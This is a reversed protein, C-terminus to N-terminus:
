PGKAATVAAKTTINGALAEPTGPNDTTPTIVTSYGNPVAKVVVSYVLTALTIIGGIVSITVTIYPAPVYFATLIQNIVQGTLLSGMGAIYGAIRLIDNRSM